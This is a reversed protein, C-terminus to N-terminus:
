VLVKGLLISVVKEPALYNEYYSLANKELEAKLTKNNLIESIATEFNANEAVEFFHKEHVFPAPLERSLPTSIIAKGLALFEALKWGHCDLVAPTNFVIASKKTKLIYESISYRRNTTHADFDNMDNNQRPAFGGEFELGAISKCAQIFKLRYNNTSASRKWISNLTFVYNTASIVPLYENISLRLYQQKYNSFFKKASTINKKAAFFNRAAFFLTEALNWIKIAFAPGISIIKNQEDATGTKLNIKGYVNCWAYGTSDIDAADLFDIFIKKRSNETEVIVAFAHENFKPFRSINFCINKKGFHQQFAYIYFSAYLVNCAAYIYVKGNQNEKASINFM